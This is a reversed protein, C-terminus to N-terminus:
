SSCFQQNLCAKIVRGSSLQNIIQYVVERRMDQQLLPIENGAGLVANANVTYNRGVSITRAPVLICGDAKELQYAVEYSLLYQSLLSTASITIRSEQFKESLIHLTVPAQVSCKTMCIGVASFNRRLDASFASYPVSTKIYLVRLASPIETNNRVQFGCGSIFCVLLLKLLLVRRM